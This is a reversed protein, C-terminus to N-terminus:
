PAQPPRKASWAASVPLVLLGLLLLGIAWYVEFSYNDWAYSLGCYLMFACSACFLIPAYPYGPVLIAGGPPKRARLVFLAVGVVLYLAWVIPAAFVVLRDFGRRGHPIPAPKGASDGTANAASEAAAPETTSASPASQVRSAVWNWAPTGFIVVLSLTVLGQAILSWIPLELKGHWTALPRFLPHDKGFAYFIRAGTFMQGHISGLASICVLASIAAAAVVGARAQEVGARSFVSQLTEAAVARASAAGHYGLVSVFALSVLVYVLTVGLIALLMSRLINKEPRQVEAGVFALDSWGGFAYLTFIMALRFSGSVEGPPAAVAETKLHTVASLVAAAIVLLLGLVKAATLLNQAWKGQRMGLLNLGTLAVITIGAYIAEPYPWPLPWSKHAYEGFVFAVSGIAAPRVVWFQSWAYIFGAWKGFARQLYVYDGGPEPHDIILEAYSLAGFLSLVGGFLWIGILGWVNGAGAAIMPTTEFIGVGIIIGMMVCIADLLTLRRKPISM